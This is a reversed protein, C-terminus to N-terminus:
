AVGTFEGAMINETPLIALAIRGFVSFFIFKTCSHFFIMVLDGYSYVTCSISPVCVLLFSNATGPVQSAIAVLPFTFICVLM